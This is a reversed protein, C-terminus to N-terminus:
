IIDQALVWKQIKVSESMLNNQKHTQHLNEEEEEEDRSIEEVHYNKQEEEGKDIGEENDDM